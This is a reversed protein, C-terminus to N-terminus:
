RIGLTDAEYVISLPKIVVRKKGDNVVVGSLCGSHGEPQAQLQRLVERMLARDEHAVYLAFGAGMNFTAYAQARTLGAMGGVFQLVAPVDPVRDLAYTLPRVPRMLKRWGHGTVNVAYHVDVGADFCARLVSVYIRTPDLLHEGYTRGDSLQTLYGEPLRDALRRADTLGNAHIGSSAFLYIDDGHEINDETLLRSKRDIIGVASGSLECSEPVVIDKLQPTEGGGWVCGALACAEHWGLILNQARLENGFWSVDGVALHMAIQLPLAGATIVDNLITAATCRGIHQYFDRGTLRHMADAVLNKTGLGEQVSALYAGQPLPPAEMLFASEGRSGPLERWGRLWSINGATTAAAKQALQKFRDLPGYDVAGTLGDPLTM